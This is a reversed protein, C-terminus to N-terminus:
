YSWRVYRGSDGTDLYDEDAAEDWAGGTLGSLRGPRGNAQVATKPRM